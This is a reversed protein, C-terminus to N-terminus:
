AQAGTGDCHRCPGSWAVDQIDGYPETDQIYGKGRCYPCDKRQESSQARVFSLRAFGFDVSEGCQECVALVMVSFGDKHARNYIPVTLFEVKREQTCKRCHGVPTQIM